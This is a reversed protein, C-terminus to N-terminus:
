VISSLRKPIDSWVVPGVTKERSIGCNDRVAHLRYGPEDALWQYVNFLHNTTKGGSKFRVTVDVYDVYWGPAAGKGDSSLRLLCVPSPLCPGDGSFVDLDGIEFYDHKPGVFGGWKELDSIEFQKGFKDLLSVSITSDTGASDRKGTQVRITYVCRTDALAVVSVTAIFFLLSLLLVNPRAM